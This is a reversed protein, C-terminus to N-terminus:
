QKRAKVQYTKEADMTSWIQTHTKKGFCELLRMHQIKKLTNHNQQQKAKTKNIKMIPKHMKIIRNLITFTIM